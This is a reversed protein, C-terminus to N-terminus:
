ARAPDGRLPRRLDAYGIMEPRQFWDPEVSGRMTSRACSPLDHRGPMWWCIWWASASGRAREAELGAYPLALAEELLPWEREFRDLLARDEPGAPVPLRAAARARAQRWTLGHQPRADTM